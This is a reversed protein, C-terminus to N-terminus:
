SEFGLLLGVCDAVIVFHLSSSGGLINQTPGEGHFYPM